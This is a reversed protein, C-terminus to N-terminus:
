CASLHPLRNYQQLLDYPWGCSPQHRHQHTEPGAPHVRPFQNKLIDEPAVKVYPVHCPGRRGKRPPHTHRRKFPVIGAMPKGDMDMRANISDRPTSSPHSGPGGCVPGPKSQQEEQERPLGRFGEQTIAKQPWVAPLVAGAASGASIRGQ